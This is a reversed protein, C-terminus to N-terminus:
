NRSCSEEYTPPPEHPYEQSSYGPPLVLPCSTPVPTASGEFFFPITSGTSISFQPGAPALVSLRSPTLTPGSPSASARWASPDQQSHSKTSIVERAGGGAQGPSEEAPPASPTLSSTSARPSPRPSPRPPVRPATSPPTPRSPTRSPTRPITPDFPVNGIFIPLIVLVDPSKLSVKLFYDISILSCGALGSQPLSPVIIQEKWEARKGGKVGAGEVEAITRFDCAVSKTKYTVKQVLSALICSTKKDSKNHVDTSLKIVQGPVYGRQDTKAKLTLAGSKILLYTFEKSVTTVNAKEIDPVENLNLPKLLFFAKQVKYDKSFRPTDIFAKVRYTIKGYPGEYSTPATDPILFQFPFSHDGPPVTGKDAVSLTSNFYQEEVTWVDDNLKNSVGCSGQCSVKIAQCQLSKALKIKVTGSISEGPNYVVKNNTLTIDFELLKGM